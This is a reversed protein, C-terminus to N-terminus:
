SEREYDYFLNQVLDMNRSVRKRESGSFVLRYGLTRLFVDSERKLRRSHVEIIIKPRFKDITKRSGELVQREFGEVDIKLLDVGKLDFSDLNRTEIKEAGGMIMMDGSREMRVESRNGLAISYSKIDVGNMGVNKLLIEYVDRLPEFAIVKAGFKKSYWVATDGYSAGIDIVTDGSKPIFGPVNYIGEVFIERLNGHPTEEAFHFGENEAIIRPYECWRGFSEKRYERDLIDRVLSHRYGYSLLARHQDLKWRLMRDRHYILENKNNNDNNQYSGFDGWLAM